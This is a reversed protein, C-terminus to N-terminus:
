RIWATSEKASQPPVPPTGSSDFFRAPALGLVGLISLIVLLSAFESRRLDEYRLDPRHRGFLLRQMLDLLYWSAILWALIVVAIATTPPLSVSLLLGMFGSFVGFPPLGLAALALLSLLTAFRPMALALGSVARLDVKGYRTLLAYWALFLGSSALCTSSLYIVAATPATQTTAVYWWLISLFALSAFSLLSRVRSQTLAKLSAYLTGLLALIVMAQVLPASLTPLIPLLHHFGLSPLLLALLAPLNGPLGTLTGVFGRHLPILPLFIACSVLLMGTSVPPTTLLSLIAAVFGIGLTALDWYAISGSPQQSRYLLAGVYGLIAASLIVAPTGHSVLSGIGLGLLVLTHFWAERSDQHRPQGLLSLFATATLLYALLFGEAPPSLRFSFWGLLLLSSATVALTWTKLLAPRSWALLGLLAGGAPMVVLLWPSAWTEMM